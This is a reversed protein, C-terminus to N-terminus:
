QRALVLVLVQVMILTLVLFVQRDRDQKVAVSSSCSGSSSVPHSATIPSNKDNTQSSAVCTSANVARPSLPVVLIKALAIIGSMLLIKNM